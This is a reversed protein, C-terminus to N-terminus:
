GCTVVYGSVLVITTILVLMTIVMSLVILSVQHIMSNTRALSQFKHHQHHVTPKSRIGDVSVATM